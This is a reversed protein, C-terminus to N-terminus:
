SRLREMRPCACAMTRQPSGDTPEKIDKTLERVAFQVDTRDYSLYLAIGVGARYIKLSAGSLKEGEKVETCLYPTPAPNCEELGMLMKLLDSIYKGRPTLFIGGDM